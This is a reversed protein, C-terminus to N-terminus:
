KLVWPFLLRSWCYYLGPTLPELITLLFLLHHADTMVQPGAAATPVTSGNGM